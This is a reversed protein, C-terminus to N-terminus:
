RRHFELADAQAHFFNHRSVTFADNPDSRQSRAAIFKKVVEMRFRAARQHGFLMWFKHALQFNTSMSSIAADDKMPKTERLWQPPAADGRLAMISIEVIVQGVHPCWAVACIGM